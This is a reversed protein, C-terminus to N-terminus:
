ARSFHIVHKNTDTHTYFIRYYLTNKTHPKSKPGFRHRKHTYKLHPTKAKYNLKYKQATGGKRFQVSIFCCLQYTAHPCACQQLRREHGASNRRRRRQQRWRRENRRHDCVGKWEDGWFGFTNLQIKKKTKPQLCIVDSVFRQVFVVISLHRDEASDMKPLLLLPM